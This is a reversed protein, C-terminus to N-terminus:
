FNQFYSIFYEEIDLKKKTKLDLELHHLKDFIEKYKSLRITTALKIKQQEIHRPLKYGLVKYSDFGNHVLIYLHINFLQSFFRLMQSLIYIVNIGQKTMEVLDNTIDDKLMFREFVKDMNVSGLGFCNNDILNITLENNLISLKYIDPIALSLDGRHINYLHELTYNTAKLNYKNCEERLISVGEYPLLEFFRVNVSNTKKNFLNALAKFDWDGNFEVILYSDEAKYSLEILFTLQRKDISKDRKIYLINKTTFLSTTQLIDKATEFDYEDYYLRTIEDESDSLMSLVKKAYLDSLFSNQGYFMYSNYIINNRLENDFEKKYM